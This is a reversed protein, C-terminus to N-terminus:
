KRILKMNDISKKLLIFFGFITGTVLGSLHTKYAVPWGNYELYGSSNFHNVNFQEAFIKVLVISYLLISVKNDRMLCILSFSFLSICVASYGRFIPYGVFFFLSFLSIIVPFLTIATACILLSRGRYFFFIILSYSLLNILLHGWTVHVFHATFLRWIQFEHLIKNRDFQLYVKDEECLQSAIFILLIPIFFILSSLKKDKLM